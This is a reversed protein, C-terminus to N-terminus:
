LALLSCRFILVSVSLLSAIDDETALKQWLKRSSHFQFAGFYTLWVLWWAVAQCQIVKSPSRSSYNYWIHFSTCLFGVRTNHSWSLNTVQEKNDCLKRDISSPFSKLTLNHMSILHFVWSFNIILNYCARDEVGNAQNSVQVKSVSHRVRTSEVCFDQM